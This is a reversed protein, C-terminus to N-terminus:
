LKQTGHKRSFFILTQLIEGNSFLNSVNKVASCEHYSVAHISQAFQRLQESTLLPSKKDNNERLDIKTAILMVPPPDRIYIHLEKLFQFPFFVSFNKKQIICKITNKKFEYPMTSIDKKQSVHKAETEFNVFDIPICLIFVDYTMEKFFLQRLDGYWECTPIDYLNVCLERGQYKMNISHVEHTTPRITKFDPCAGDIYAKIM